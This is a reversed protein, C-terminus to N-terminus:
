STLSAASPPRKRKIGPILRNEDRYSGRSQFRLAEATQWSRTQLRGTQENDAM